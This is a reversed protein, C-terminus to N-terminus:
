YGTGFRSRRTDLQLEMQRIVPFVELALVERMHDLSTFDCPRAGHLKQQALEDDLRTALSRVDQVDRAVYRMEFSSLHGRDAARHLMEHLHENLRDFRSTYFEIRASHVYDNGLRHADEHLHRAALALQDALEDLLRVDPRRVEYRPHSLDPRFSVVPRRTDTACQGGLPTAVVRRDQIVSRQVPPRGFTIQWSSFQASAPLSTICTALVAATGFLLKKM